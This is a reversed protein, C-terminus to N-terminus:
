PVPAMTGSGVSEGQGTAVVIDDKFKVTFTRTKKTSGGVFGGIIPIFTSGKVRTRTFFYKWVEVDNELFAVDAPNGLIEKVDDKSSVGIEIAKINNQDNIRKNGHSACGAVVVMM